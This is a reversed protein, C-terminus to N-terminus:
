LEINYKKKIEQMVEEHTYVDGKEIDKLGEEIDSKLAEPFDDWALKEPKVQKTLLVKLANLIGTDNTKAILKYLDAKLEATNM